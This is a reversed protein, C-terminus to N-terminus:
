SALPVPEAPPYLHHQPSSPLFSRLYAPMKLAAERRLAAFGAREPGANWWERTDPEFAAPPRVAPAKRIVLSSPSEIPQSSTKRQFRPKARVCSGPVAASPTMRFTLMMRFAEAPSSFLALALFGALLPRRSWGSPFARM